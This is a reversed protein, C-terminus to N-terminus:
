SRDGYIDIMYRCIYSTYTTHPAIPWSSYVLASAFSWTSLCVCVIDKDIPMCMSHRQSGEVDLTDFPKSTLIWSSLSWICVCWGGTAKLRQGTPTLVHFPKPCGGLRQSGDPACAGKIYVHIYVNMYSWENIGTSDGKIYTTHRMWRHSM